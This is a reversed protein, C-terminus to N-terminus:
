LTTIHESKRKPVDPRVNNRFLLINNIRVMIDQGVRDVRMMLNKTKVVKSQTSENFTAAVGMGYEDMAKVLIRGQGVKFSSVHLFTPIKLDNFEMIIYPPPYIPFHM